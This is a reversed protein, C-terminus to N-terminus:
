KQDGHPNRERAAYQGDDRAVARAYGHQHVKRRRRCKQERPKPRFFDSLAEADALRLLSRSEIEAASKFVARLFPCPM